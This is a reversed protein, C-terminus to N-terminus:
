SAETGVDIDRDVRVATDRHFIIATTDRDAWM